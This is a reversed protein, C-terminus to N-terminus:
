STNNEVRHILVVPCSDNRFSAKAAGGSTNLKAVAGLRCDGMSARGDLDTGGRPGGGGGAAGEFLGQYERAKISVSRFNASVSCWVARRAIKSAGM